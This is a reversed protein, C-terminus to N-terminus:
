HWTAGCKGCVYKKGYVKPYDLLVINKDEVQRIMNIANNGCEPCAVRVGESTSKEESEGTEDAEAPSETTEPEEAEPEPSSVDSEPEDEKPEDEEDM